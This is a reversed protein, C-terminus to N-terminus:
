GLRELVRVLKDRVEIAVPRLEPDAAAFTAMPDIATIVTRGESEYVAVNCPMMTGAALNSSLARHALPPNCAGFIRYRGMEVGIKARLTAQMDIETLVGFGEAKLAEPLRQITTDFDTTVTIQIGHSM